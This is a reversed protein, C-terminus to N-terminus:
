FSQGKKPKAAVQWGDEYLIHGPDRCTILEIWHGYSELLPRIDWMRRIPKQATHKYWCIARFNEYKLLEKPADLHIEFWDLWDQITNADAVTTDKHDRLRYAIQFLGYRNRTGKCLQLSQFRIYQM